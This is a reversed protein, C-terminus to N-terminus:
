WFLEKVHSLLVFQDPASTVLVQLVTIV